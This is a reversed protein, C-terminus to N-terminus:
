GSVPDIYPIGIAGSQSPNFGLYESVTDKSASFLRATDITDDSLGRGHLLARHVLTLRDSGTNDTSGAKERYRAHQQREDETTQM